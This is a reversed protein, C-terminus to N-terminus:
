ASNENGIESGVLWASSDLGEGPRFEFFLGRPLRWPTGASGGLAEIKVKQDASPKTQWAPPPRLKRDCFVGPSLFRQLLPNRVDPDNEVVTQGGLERSKRDSGRDSLFEM